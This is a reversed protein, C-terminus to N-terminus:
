TSWFFFVLIHFCPNKDAMLVQTPHSKTLSLVTGLFGAYFGIEEERQACAPGKDTEDGNPFFLSFSIQM